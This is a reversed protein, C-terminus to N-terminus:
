DKKFTEKYYKEAFKKSNQESICDTNDGNCFADIIEQKHMEKAQHFIVNDVNTGKPVLEYKILQDILWEISTMNNM